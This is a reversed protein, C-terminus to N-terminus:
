VLHGYKSKTHVYKLTNKTCQRLRVIDVLLTAARMITVGDYINTDFGMSEPLPYSTVHFVEEVALLNIDDRGKNLQDRQKLQFIM